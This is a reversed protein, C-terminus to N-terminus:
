QNYFSTNFFVKNTEEPNLKWEQKIKRNMEETYGRITYYEARDFFLIIRDSLEKMQHLQFTTDFSSEDQVFLWVIRRLTFMARIVECLPVQMKFMDIGEQAYRKGIEEKTTDYSIWQGLNELIHKAKNEAYDIHSKSFSSTTPDTLLRTSWRKIIEKSHNEVLEVLKDSILHVM